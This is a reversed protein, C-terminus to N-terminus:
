GACAPEEAASPVQEGPLELVFTAGKGAGESLARLTGGLERAALASSHLGFGHGTKRTTFGHEFIRTLNEPPIGVGNDAVVIQVRDDVAVISLRLEKRGPAGADLAYKANTILNILIQLVKHRDVLVKRTDSFERVVHVDHRALAASNMRLADEVLSVPTLPESVGSVKAYTQQMVVIEKIHGINSVLLAVERLLTEREQELHEHLKALYGPLQGARSDNAFFKGLDSSHEQLLAAVKGVATAKSKRLLDSVLTASVNVSNLVNGVNHLVGTAVEAMGARRSTDLLQNHMEELEAEARKLETIDKSIGFTGVIEGSPDRFPMKTTLVWSVKGDLWVEREVKSIIPQGTRIIRQEDALAERSHENDFLKSDSLGVIQDPDSLGLRKALARSCKLFRSDRDKFYIHDPSHELLTRLLHREYDLAEQMRRSETVDLFCGQTGKVSGDSGYVPVKFTHMHRVDGTATKLVEQIDISQGTRMVREDDERYKTALDREAFDFDTKGLLDESQRGLTRCFLTNVFTLRGEADKRYVCIPLHDVLSSYLSQSERLAEEARRREGVEQELARTREQVRAELQDQARQLAADRAQIQALMENFSDVLRGVEDNGTKPARASYDRQAAVRLATESLTLIPRSILRQLPASLLLAFGVSAVFVLAAIGASRKLRTDLETLDSRLFVTGVQRNDSVIKRFVEVSDDRFRDTTQDLVPPRFQTAEDARVYAAFVEGSANYWIAAVMHPDKRLATIIEDVPKLDGFDLAATSSQAILEAKSRMQSMLQGRFTLLDNVTFGGVALLLAGCSTLMAVLMLKTRISFDRLM